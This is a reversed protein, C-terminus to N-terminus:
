LGAKAYLEKCQNKYETVELTKVQSCQFNGPAVQSFCLPMKYSISLSM